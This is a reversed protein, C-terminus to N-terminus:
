TSGPDEREHGCEGPAGARATLVHRVERILNALRDNPVDKLNPADVGIEGPLLGIAIKLYDLPREERVAAIVHAAHDELDDEIAALLKRAVSQRIEAPGQAQPPGANKNSTM